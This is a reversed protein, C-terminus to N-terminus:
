GASHANAAWVAQNSYQVLTQVSAHTFFYALRTVVLSRIFDGETLAYMTTNWPSHPPSPAEISARRAHGGGRAPTRDSFQSIDTRLTMSLKASPGTALDFGLSTYDYSGVPLTM